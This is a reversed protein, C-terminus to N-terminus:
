VPSHSKLLRQFFGHHQPHPCCPRPRFFDRRRHLHSRLPARRYGRQDRQCAEPGASSGQKLVLQVRFYIHAHLFGRPLHHRKPSLKTSRLSSNSSPLAWVTGLNDLVKDIHPASFRSAITASLLPFVAGCDGVTPCSLKLVTGTKTLLLLVPSALIRSSLFRCCWHRPGTKAIFLFVSISLLRRHLPSPPLLVTSGAFLM